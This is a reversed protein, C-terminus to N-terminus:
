QNAPGDNGKSPTNLSLNGKPVLGRKGDTRITWWHSSEVKWERKGATESDQPCSGLRALSPPPAHWGRRKKLEPLNHYYDPEQLFKTSLHVRGMPFELRATSLGPSPPPLGMGGQFNSGLFSAWVYFLHGLACNMRHTLVKILIYQVYAFWNGKISRGTVM